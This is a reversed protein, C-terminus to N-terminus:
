SAGGDGHERSFLAAMEAIQAKQDPHLAELFTVAFSAPASGPASVVRGDAVARPTDVYRESGPYSPLHYAIWDRGNSTHDTEDFLGARALALTGACIGGVLGGRGHVARLLPAPDPRGDEAWADSGILALADLDANEDPSLGREPQLTFGATSRVPRGEPTLAICRGGFWEAASAALLGYEWDAFRDIFVFGITKTM